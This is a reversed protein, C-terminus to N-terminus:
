TTDRERERQNKRKIDKEKKSFNRYKNRADERLIEKNTGYYKAAKEKDGKNHYKDWANKLIKQKNFWYYSM